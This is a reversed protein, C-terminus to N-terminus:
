KTVDHVHKQANLVTTIVHEERRCVTVYCPESRGQNFPLNPARVQLARFASARLGFPQTRPTTKPLAPFGEGGALPGPSHQLSGRHPRSHLGLQWFNQHKKHESILDGPEGTLSFRTYV